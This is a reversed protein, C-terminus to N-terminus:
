SWDRTIVLTGFDDIVAEALSFSHKPHNTPAHGAGAFMCLQWKGRMPVWHHSCAVTFHHYNVM